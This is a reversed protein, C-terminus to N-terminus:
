FRERNEARNIVKLVDKRDAEGFRMSSLLKEAKKIDSRYLRERKKQDELSRLTNRFVAFAEPKLAPNDAHLAEIQQEYYTRGMKARDVFAERAWVTGAKRADAMTRLSQPAEPKSPKSPKPPPNLLPRIPPPPGAKAVIELMEQKGRESMNTRKGRKYDADPDRVAGRFLDREFPNKILYAGADPHNGVHPFYTNLTSALMKAAGASSAQAAKAGTARATISYSGRGLKRVWWPKRADTEASVMVFGGEVVDMIAGRTKTNDNPSAM